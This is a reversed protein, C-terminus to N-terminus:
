NGTEGMTQTVKPVVVIVQAHFLPYPTFYPIFKHIVEIHAFEGQAFLYLFIFALAGSAYHKLSLFLFTSIGGKPTKGV